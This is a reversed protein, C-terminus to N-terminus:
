KEEIIRKFKLKGVNVTMKDHIAIKAQPDSITARDIRVGGQKILRKAESKSPAMKLEVLLDAIKKKTGAKIKVEEMEAPMQGQEFILEFRDEAKEAEKVSHFETIITKALYKKLEKPNKGLELEDEIERVEFDELDTALHCYEVILDDPISMIKGYQEEPKEKIGIYNNLSKSMKVKGDTGPLIPMM